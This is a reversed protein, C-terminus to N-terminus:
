IIGKGKLLNIAAMKNKVKLKLYVSAMHKKVTVVAINLEESIESQTYGEDVLKMVELERPTLEIKEKGGYNQSYIDSFENCKAFLRKAYEDKKRIEKLVPLIHPSLEIFCMIINDEKALKVAKLLSQQAKETDQLNYKAISDFIYSYLIGFIYNKRSYTELMVEAHIELEIYSQKIIMALGSIIYSMSLYPSFVQLNPSDDDNIWIHIDDLNGTIGDIYGLSIETGNLFRPIDLNKYESILNNFKKMEYKDNKNISIRMLLFLSCIIISIQNKSKAKHLAKYAFLEGNYIDGTEFFYEASMLYNAGAAGGNSIHNFYAIGKRFNDVLNKLAGKRTHYLYLFHPSGFTVPMKDNAIKSTEGNFLEYAKKQYEIMREIDNLMLLSEIFAIEGLVHNRDKLDENVEYIVGLEYLLEKGVKPNEYLIYFFIHKLYAIPRNVKQEITLDNFVAKIIKKWVKTLSITDNREILNLIYEYNKAKYYYEMAEIDKSLGSYWDGCINNIKNSDIDLSIIEEKLASRLISHLVYTKSKRDYKIFCNNSLLEKIVENSKKNETIYIAQELTFYELPALQLLIKKTTEDFKDYVAKKILETAKPINDFTNENYYQILALYTASTWGGTYEYVEAREKETLDIGNIKFFEITENFTFAIDDQWMVLCKRKLELEIFQNAPKNRSIIVIHLNPIEELAIVKILYNIYITKYDYWDDIIMVTKQKVADRITDIIRYVDMNNQPFGYSSLRQSLKVNTTKIADCFKHWMWAEDDEENATDFWITKIGRKRELFSKVSTTKGYGMSASVFFIPVEFIQSLLKDVRKRHLIKPRLIQSRM